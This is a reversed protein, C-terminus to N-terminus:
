VTTESLKDAINKLRNQISDDIQRNGMTLKIGGILGPNVIYTMDIRKGTHAALREELRKKQEDTLPVASEATARMVAFADLCLREYEEFCGNLETALGRETMLKVFSVLYPHVNEGLAEGVLRIREEKPLNPNILLRTYDRTLLRRLQRTEDLFREELKEEQALEFLGGGYERIIENM